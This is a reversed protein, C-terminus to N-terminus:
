LQPIHKQSENWLESPSYKDDNNIIVTGDEKIEVSSGMSTVHPALLINKKKGKELSFAEAHEKNLHSKMYKIEGNEFEIKLITGMMEVKVAKPLQKVM